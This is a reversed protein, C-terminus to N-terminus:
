RLGARRRGIWEACLLGLVLLYPWSATRLPRGSEPGAGGTGEGPADPGRMSAPVVALEDTRAAVDFRGEADPDDPDGFRYAYTGPPLAGTPIGTGAPLTAETVVEGDSSIVIALSDGVQGPVRWTVTEGRHFVWKDPRPRSAVLRTDDVLLWGAVGSWLRRYADLGVGGRAPWRWFGSALVVATRRGEAAKLALGPAGPGTGGLQVDLAGVASEGDGPLLIGALPPLGEVPLRALDAAVPSAPIVPSAYWEGRQPPGTRVGAVASGAADAPWALLRSSGRVLSREWPGLDGDIGHIVILAADSVASSVQASDAPSSRDVARGMSAFRNAGVRLYGTAPLGTVDSLVSLLARPEWDPRFSVLVLGGEEHGVNMYDVAEDDSAFQDGGTVVAATYRRRGEGQAPPLEVTLSSSLGLSPLGVSRSLVLRGEERFEVVVSDGMGEGFLELEARLPDDPARQDEVVFRGLGVNRVGPAVSEFRVVGPGGSVAARAAVPDEFRLDSLVVVERAGAEMARALAPGVETGAAQPLGSPLSDLVGRGFPVVTWGDERFGETLSWASDWPVGDAASMSLSADLLVWRDGGSAVTGWPLRADLLLALLVVLTTARLSALGWRGRVPLEARAYVWVAYGSLAGALVLFLLLRIV